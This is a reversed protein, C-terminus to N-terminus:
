GGMKSYEGWETRTTHPRHRPLSRWGTLEWYVSATVGGVSLVLLLGGLVIGLWPRRRYLLASLGGGLLTLWAAVIALELALYDFAYGAAAGGAILVAVVALAWPFQTEAGADRRATDEAISAGRPAAPTLAPAKEDGSPLRRVTGVLGTIHHDLPATLADLWHISGIFYRMEGSPEIEEIRFPLIPLRRDLAQGVERMVQHSRNAGDSFILVFARAGEIAGIIVSAWYEGPPVDRPAIWCRIGEAELAACVADAAPKDKSSYSIFVDHAM